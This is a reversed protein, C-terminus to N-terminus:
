FDITQDKQIAHGNWAQISTWEAYPETWFLDSDPLGLALFIACCFYVSGTNIDSESIDLQSGNLGVLLWGNSSFNQNEGFQKKLVATLASRVQAPKINRPLIKLLAAQSLLHFVGCRYSLCSGLLPYTGEPSISRELQSSLRSSRM